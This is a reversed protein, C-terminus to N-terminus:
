RPLAAVAEAKVWADLFYDYLSFTTLPEKLGLFYDKVVNFVDQEFGPYSPLNSEKGSVTKLQRPWNALCKMASLVWHPLDESKDDVQVIGKSSVRTMNHMVREIDLLEAEELSKVHHVSLSCSLLNSFVRRWVGDNDLTILANSPINKFFTENLQKKAHEEKAKRVRSSDRRKRVIIQERPVPKDDISSIESTTEAKFEDDNSFNRKPTNGLDSLATRGENESKRDVKGPTRLNRVPSKNSLKYLEGERFENM